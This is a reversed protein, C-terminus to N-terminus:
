DFHWDGTLFLCCFFIMECVLFWLVLISSIQFLSSRLSFSFAVEIRIYTSESLCISLIILFEFMTKCVPVLFFVTPIVFKICLIVFKWVRRPEVGRKRFCCVHAILPTGGNLLLYIRLYIRAFLLIKNWKLNNCVLSTAM